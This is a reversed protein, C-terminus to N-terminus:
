SRAVIRVREATPKASMGIPAGPMNVIDFLATKKM